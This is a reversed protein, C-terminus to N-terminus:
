RLKTARQYPTFFTHWHMYHNCRNEHHLSWFNGGKNCLIIIQRYIVGIPPPNVARWHKYKIYVWGLYRIYLSM